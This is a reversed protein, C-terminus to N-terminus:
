LVKTPETKDVPPAETSKKLWVGAAAAAIAGSVGTLGISFQVGDFKGNQFTSWATLILFQIGGLSVIGYGIIRAPDYDTGNPGTSIDKIVKKFLEILAKLKALM